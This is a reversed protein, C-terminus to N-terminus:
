AAEVEAECRPLGPYCEDENSGDCEKLSELPLFRPRYQGFDHLDQSQPALQRTMPISTPRVWTM